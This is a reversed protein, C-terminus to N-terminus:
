TGFNAAGIPAYFVVMDLSWVATGSTVASANFEAWVYQQAADDSISIKLPVNLSFRTIANAGVSISATVTTGGVLVSFGGSFSSPVDPFRIYGDLVTTRNPIKICLLHTVSMSGDTAGGTSMAAATIGSHNLRPIVVANASTLTAM